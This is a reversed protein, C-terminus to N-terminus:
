SAADMFYRQARRGLNCKDPAFDVLFWCEIDPAIVKVVSAPIDSMTLDAVFINEIGVGKLKAIMLKIDDLIDSNEYSQIKDFNIKDGADSCWLVREKPGYQIIRRADERVGQIQVIRGQAAETIARIAAVTSNPHCGFGGAALETGDDNIKQLSAVFTAIGVDSTVNRLWLKTDDKHAFSVLKAVPDPVTELRVLPFPSRDSKVNDEFSIGEALSNAFSRARPILEARVAAITYADREIVEALAHCIAEEITNGSALGHSSSYWTGAAPGEYPCLVFNLPILVRREKVLDWGDCWELAVHEDYDRHKQLRM